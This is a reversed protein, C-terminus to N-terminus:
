TLDDVPRLRKEERTPDYLRMDLDLFGCDQSQSPKSQVTKVKASEAYCIQATVRDGRVIGVMGSPLPYKMCLYPYSGVAALAIVYSSPAKVIM